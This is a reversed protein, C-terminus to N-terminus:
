RKPNLLHRRAPESSSMEPTLTPGLRHGPKPKVNKRELAIM